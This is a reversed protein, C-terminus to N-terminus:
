AEGKRRRLAGFGLLGAGVLALTAPEPVRGVTVDDIGWGDSRDGNTNVFTVTASVVAPDFRATVYTRNGNALDSFDIFGTDTMGNEFTIRFVAGQDAPDQLFFGIADFHADDLEVDWTIDLLDRSDLFKSPSVASRGNVNGTAIEFNPGQQGAAGGTFSGVSTDLTAYQGTSFGDFTETTKSGLTTLFAAEAAIVQDATGSIGSVTIGNSTYLIGANASSAAAVTAIGLALGMISKKM